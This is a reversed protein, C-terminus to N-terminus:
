RERDAVSEARREITRRARHLARRRDGRRRDDAGLELDREVPHAARQLDGIAEAVGREERADM